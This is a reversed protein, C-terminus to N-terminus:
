AGYFKSWIHDGASNFKALYLSSNAAAFTAGGFGTNGQDAGSGPADTYIGNPDGRFGDKEAIFYAQLRVMEFRKEPTLVAKPAAISVPLAPVAAVTVTTPQASM